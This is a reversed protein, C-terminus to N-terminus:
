ATESDPLKVNASVQQQDQAFNVTVMFFILIQLVLDLLPTLNPECVSEAHVTRGM